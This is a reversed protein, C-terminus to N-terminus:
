LSHDSFHSFISHATRQTFIGQLTWPLIVTNSNASLCHRIFYGNMIINASSCSQLFLVAFRSAVFPWVPHWQQWSLVSFQPLLQWLSVLILCCSVPFNNGPTILRLKQQSMCITSMSAFLIFFVSRDQRATITYHHTHTHPPPVKRFSCRNFVVPKSLKTTSRTHGDESPQKWFSLM